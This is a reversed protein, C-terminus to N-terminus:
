RLPSHSAMLVPRFNNAKSASMGAGEEPTDDYRHECLSQRYTLWNISKALGMSVNAERPGFGACSIQWRYVKHYRRLSQPLFVAHRHCWCVVMLAM